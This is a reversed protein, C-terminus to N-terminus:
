SQAKCKEYAQPKCGQPARQQLIAMLTLPMKKPVEFIAVQPTNNEDHYAIRLFHKRQRKRVLGVAVAPLVGLHHAVQQSHEYSDIKAFAIVLKGTSSEFVLDTLSNTDLKARDGEKLSVVTGGVYMVDGDEVALVPLTLTLLLCLTASIKTM